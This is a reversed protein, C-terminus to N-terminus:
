RRATHPIHIMRVLEAFSNTSGHCFMLSQAISQLMPRRQRSQLDRRIIGANQIAVSAQALGALYKNMDHGQRGAGNIPNQHIDNRVCGVRLDHLWSCLLPTDLLEFLGTWSCLQDPRCLKLPQGHYVLFTKPSM